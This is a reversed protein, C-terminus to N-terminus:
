QSEDMMCYMSELKNLGQLHLDQSDHRLENPDHQRYTAAIKWDDAASQRKSGWIKSDPIGTIEENLSKRLAHERSEPKGLEKDKLSMAITLAEWRDIIRSILTSTKM